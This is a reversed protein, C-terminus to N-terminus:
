PNVAVSTTGSCNETEATITVTCSRESGTLQATALGNADTTGTAQSTSNFNACTLSSTSFTVTMGQVSNGQDDTVTASITTSTGGTITTPNAAVAVNLHHCAAFTFLMCVALAVLLTARLAPPLGVTRRGRSTEPIHRRDRTAQNSQTTIMITGKPAAEM